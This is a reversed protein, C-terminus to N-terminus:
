VTETVSARPKPAKTMPVTPSTSALRVWAKVSSAPAPLHFRRSKSTWGSWRAVTSSKTPERADPGSATVGSTGERSDAIM